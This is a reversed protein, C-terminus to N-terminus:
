PVIGGLRVINERLERVNNRLAAERRVSEALRRQLSAGLMAAGPQAAFEADDAAQKAARQQLWEEAIAITPESEDDTEVAKEAAAFAEPDNILRDILSQVREPRQDSEGDRNTGTGKGTPDRAQLREELTSKNAMFGRIDKRLWARCARQGPTRDESAPREYVHRMDRLQQPVGADALCDDDQLKRDKPEMQPEGNEELRKRVAPIRIDGKVFPRGLGRGRKAPKGEPKVEPTNDPM